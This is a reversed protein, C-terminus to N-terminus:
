PGKRPQTNTRNYQVYRQIQEILTPQGPAAPRSLLEAVLDTAKQKEGRATLLISHAYEAAFGNPDLRRSKQIETNAEEAKNQFALAAALGGHAEAFNRDVTIAHRFTREAAVFDKNTLYSWGLAIITGSNDPMFKSAKELCAAAEAHKGQYLNSLGLGLWGRGNDPQQRVVHQFHEAAVGVEQNELASTGLVVAADVEEPFASLVETALQQAQAMNRRDMEILALYARSSPHGSIDIWDQCAAVAEEMKGQHHLARALYALTASEKSLGDKVASRFCAEAEDWRSQYYLALGLNHQLAPETDGSDILKRLLEEAEAFRHQSILVSAMRGQVVSNGPALALCREYYEVARDFNSVSHYLDGLTLHIMYNDPDAQAYTEYKTIQQEIEDQRSLDNM